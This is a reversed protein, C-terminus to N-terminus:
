PETPCREQGRGWLDGQDQRFEGVDRPTAGDLQEHQEGAAIRGLVQLEEDEAM